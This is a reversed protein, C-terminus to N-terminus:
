FTLQQMRSLKYAVYLHNIVKAILRLGQKCSFIKQHFHFLKSTIRSNTEVVVACTEESFSGIQSHTGSHLPKFVDWDGNVNLRSFNLRESLSARARAFYSM